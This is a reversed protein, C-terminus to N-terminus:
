SVEKTPMMPLSKEMMVMLVPPNEEELTSTLRQPEEEAMERDRVKEATLQLLQLLLTVQDM